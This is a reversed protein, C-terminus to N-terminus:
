WRLHDIMTVQGADSPAPKKQRLAPRTVQQEPGQVVIEEYGKHRSGAPVKARVVVTADITLKDLQSGRRRRSAASHDESNPSLRTAAITARLRSPNGVGKVGPGSRHHPRIEFLKRSRGAPRASDDLSRAIFPQSPSLRLDIERSFLCSGRIVIKVM